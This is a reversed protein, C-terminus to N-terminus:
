PTPTDAPEEGTRLDGSFEAMGTGAVDPCCSPVGFRFTGIFDGKGAAGAFRGTGGVFQLVGGFNFVGLADPVMGEGQYEIELVDGTAVVTFAATGEIIGGPNDNFDVVQEAELIANGVRDIFGVGELAVQLIGPALEEVVGTQGFTSVFVPREEALSTASLCAALILTTALVLRRLCM